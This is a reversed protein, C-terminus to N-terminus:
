QRRRKLFSVYLGISEIWIRIPPCTNQFRAFNEWWFIDQGVQSSDNSSLAEILCNDWSKGQMHVLGLKSEFHREYFWSTEQHIYNYKVSFYMHSSHAISMTSIALVTSMGQHLRWPDKRLSNIQVMGFSFKLVKVQFTFSILIQCLKAWKM